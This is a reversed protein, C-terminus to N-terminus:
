RAGIMAPRDDGRCCLRARENATLMATRYRGNLLCHDCPSCAWAVAAYHNTIDSVSCAQVIFHKSQWQVSCALWCEVSYAIIQLIYKVDVFAAYGLVSFHQYDVTCTALRCSHQTSTYLSYQIIWCRILPKLKTKQYCKNLSTQNLLIFTLRPM